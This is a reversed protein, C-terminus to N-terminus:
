NKKGKGEGNKTFEEEGENRLEEREGTRSRSAKDDEKELKELDM